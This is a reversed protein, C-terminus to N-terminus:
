CQSVESSGSISTAYVITIPYVYRRVSIGELMNMISLVKIVDERKSLMNWGM